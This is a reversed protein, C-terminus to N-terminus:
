RRRQGRVRRVMELLDAAWRRREEAEAVVRRVLGPEEGTNVLDAGRDASRMVLEHDAPPSAAVYIPTKGEGDRAELDTGADVLLDVCEAHGVNHLPTGGCDDAVNPDAGAALLLRTLEVAVREELHGGGAFHLPTVGMGEEDRFNVDAGLEIFARVLDVHGGMCAWQLPSESYGDSQVSAGRSALFRVVEPTKAYHMANLRDMTTAHVDAGLGILIELQSVDGNIAAVHLPTFGGSDRGNVDAGAEVLRRFIGPTPMGKCVMGLADDGTPGLKASAGAELLAEVVAEHGWCAAHVLATVRRVYPTGEIDVQAGAALCAKVAALRGWIACYTLVPWSNHLRRNIDAGM